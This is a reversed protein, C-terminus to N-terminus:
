PPMIPHSVVVCPAADHPLLEQKIHASTSRSWQFSHALFFLCCCCRTVPIVNLLLFVIKMCLSLFHVSRFDTKDRMSKIQCDASACISTPSVSPFLADEASVNQKLNMWQTKLATGPSILCQRTEKQETFMSYTNKAFQPAAALQCLRDVGSSQHLVAAHQLRVPSRENWTRNSLADNSLSFRRHQQQQQRELSCTAGKM